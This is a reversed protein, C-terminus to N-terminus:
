GGDIGLASMIQAMSVYGTLREISPKVARELWNLTREYDYKEAPPIRWLGPHVTGWPPEIGRKQWFSQVLRVVESTIEDNNMVLFQTALFEAHTRRTQVEWRLMNRYREDGSQAWKDYIRGMSNSANKGSYVTDGDGEDADVLRVKPKNGGKPPKAVRLLSAYNAIADKPRKTTYGHQSTVQIDMRTVTHSSNYFRTYAEQATPGPVNLLAREDGIGIYTGNCRFGKTGYLTAPKIDTTNLALRTIWALGNNYFSKNADQSSDSWLTLYDIGAYM